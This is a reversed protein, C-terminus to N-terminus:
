MSVEITFPSTIKTTESKNHKCSSYNALYLFPTQEFIPPLFKGGSELPYNVLSQCFCDETEIVIFFCIIFVANMVEGIIENKTTAGMNITLVSTCYLKM